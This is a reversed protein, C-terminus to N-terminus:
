QKKDELIAQIAKYAKFLNIDINIRIADGWCDDEWVADEFIYYEPHIKLRNQLMKLLEEDSVKIVAQVM